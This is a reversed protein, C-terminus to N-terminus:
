QGGRQEVYLQNVKQFKLSITVHGNIDIILIVYYNSPM